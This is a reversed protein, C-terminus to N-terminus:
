NTHQAALCWGLVLMVMAPEVQVGLGVIGARGDVIM